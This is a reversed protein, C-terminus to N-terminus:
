VAFDSRSKVDPRKRYLGLVERGSYTGTKGTVPGSNHYLHITSARQLAGGHM